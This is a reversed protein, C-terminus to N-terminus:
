PADTNLLSTEFHATDCTVLMDVLVYSDMKIRQRNKITYNEMKNYLLNSINNGIKKKKSITRTEKKRDTNNNTNQIIQVANRSADANLLSREFHDTDPTVVM